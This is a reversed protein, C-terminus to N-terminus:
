FRYLYGLVLGAPSSRDVLPSDTIADSLRTARLDLFLNQGPWLSYDVRLGLEVNVTSDGEYRPRDSRAESANVGYYYDVYASDLQVAALRPTLHFQGFGWRRDAQLKFQLGESYGSADSLLEASLNVFPTRWLAEGGLWFGDKREAMGHLERADSAEYGNLSYRARLRLLVPGASPLTFDLNPGLWRVWTNEYYILPIAWIENDVGRYPRQHVDVGLGIGWQADTRRVQNEQAWVEAPGFTIALALLAVPSARARRAEAPPTSPVSALKMRPREQARVFHFALVLFTPPAQHLRRMDRYQEFPKLFDNDPHVISSSTRAPQADNCGGGNKQSSV